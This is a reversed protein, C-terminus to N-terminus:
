RSREPTPRDHDLDDEEDLDDEDSHEATVNSQGFRKAEQAEEYREFAVAIDDREDDTFESDDLLKEPTELDFFELEANLGAIAGVERGNLSVTFDPPGFTTRESFHVVRPNAAVFRILDAEAHQDAYGQLCQYYHSLSPDDSMSKRLVWLSTAIGAADVSIEASEANVSAPLRNEEVPLRTSDPVVYFGGNSLEFYHWDGKQRSAFIALQKVIVQPLDVSGGFSVSNRSLLAQFQAETVERAEITTPSSTSQM